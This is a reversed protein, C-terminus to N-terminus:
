RQQGRGRSLGGQPASIRATLTSCAKSISRNLYPEGKEPRYLGSSKFIRAMQAANCDTFFALMNLLMFDNRSNDGTVNAGSYLRDFESGKKSRRIRDIVEQDSQSSPDRREPQRSQEPARRGLTQRLWSMTAQPCKGLTLTGSRVDGTMSIFRGTDYVEIEGSDTVARNRYKGGALIDDKVFIHIGNGSVSTETYTEPIEKTLKEANASLTGDKEVSHDLDICSIGSGNLAFSLGECNNEEAYRLATEFDTWTAPDTSKAWKGDTPSIIFKDKKGKEANWKTRFVCWNPLARMEAPVKARLAELRKANRHSPAVRQASKGVERGELAACLEAGNLEVNLGDHKLVFQQSARVSLKMEGTKADQRIMSKPAFFVFSSYEGKAPMHIMRTRGYEEGILDSPIAISYREQGTRGAPEAQRAQEAQEVPESQQVQQSQEDQEIGLARQAARQQEVTGNLWDGLTEEKARVPQMDVEAGFSRVVDAVQQAENQTLGTTTFRTIDAAQIIAGGFKSERMYVGSITKGNEGTYRLDNSWFELGAESAAKDKAQNREYVTQDEAYGLEKMQNNLLMLNGYDLRFNLVYQGAQEAQRAQEASQRHAQVEEVFAKIEENQPTDEFARLMHNILGGAEESGIDFRCNSYWDGGSETPTFIHLKTKYYGERDKEADNMAELIKDAEDFRMVTNDRLSPSNSESWEVVVYALNEAKGRQEAEARAKELPTQEAQQTDANEEDNEEINPCYNTYYDTDIGHEDIIVDAVEERDNLAKEIEEIYERVFAAEEGFEDFNIIWNGQTTNETGTKVIGDVIEDIKKQLLAQETEENMRLDEEQIGLRKIYELTTENWGDTFLNTDVTEWYWGDYMMMDDTVNYGGTLFKRINQETEAPNSGTLKYVTYTKDGSFGGEYHDAGEVFAPDLEKLQKATYLSNEEKLGQWDYVIGYIDEREREKLYHSSVYDSIKEADSAASYFEKPNDKVAKLWSALYAGHNEFHKGEVSIGLETQMFVSALEARLEERAYDPSGFIGKLSRNLRSEHGTSHAIEHLATAYYDQMTKFDKIEPLHISDSMPSYYARSGGNYYVPAESNAIVTEILDNQRAREEAAMEPTQILEYEPLKDCQQANFVQYFKIVPRVNEQKYEQKEEDTMGDLTKVDFPKKTKKDYWTWFFIESSKEGSKVNGGFEKVQNFTLWRPDRYGHQLAIVYLYFANLGKYNRQTKGNLPPISPAKYWGAEWQAPDQEIFSILTEVMKKRKDEVKQKYDM